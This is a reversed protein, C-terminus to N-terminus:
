WQRRCCVCQQRMTYVLFLRRRLPYSLACYLRFEVLDTVRLVRTVCGVRGIGRLMDAVNEEYFRSRPHQSSVAGASNLSLRVGPRLADTLLPATNRPLPLHVAVSLATILRRRRGRSLYTTTCPRRPRVARYVTGRYDRTLRAPQRPRM